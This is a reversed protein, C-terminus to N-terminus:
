SAPPQGYGPPIKWVARNQKQGFPFVVLARTINIPNASHVYFNIDYRQKPAITDGRGPCMPRSPYQLIAPPHAPEGASVTQARIAACPFSRTGTNVVHLFFGVDGDGGTVVHVLSIVVVMGRAQGSFRQAVNLPKAAPSRSLTAAAAGQRDMLLMVAISLAAIVVTAALL